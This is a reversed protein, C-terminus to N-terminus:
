ESNPPTPATGEGQKHMVQLMGTSQMGYSVPLSFDSAPFKSSLLTSSHPDGHCLVTSEQGPTQEKIDTNVRSLCSTSTSMCYAPIQLRAGTSEELLAGGPRKM